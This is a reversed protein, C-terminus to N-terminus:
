KKQVKPDPVGCKCGDDGKKCTCKEGEGCALIAAREEPTRPKLPNLHRVEANARHFCFPRFSPSEENHCALCTSMPPSVIIEGAPLKAYKPAAKEDGFGEEDEEDGAAAVRAKMHQEGPGHCTECQVGAKMDFSKDLQEKPVGFATVHCKLCADAKQPDDIGKAKGVQKAEESALREWAHSHKMGQWAAFQDGSAKDAHCSKCKQAGIYRNTKAQAPEAVSPAATATASSVNAALLPLGLACALLAAALSARGRNSRHLNM